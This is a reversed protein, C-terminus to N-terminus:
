KIISVEKNRIKDNKIIYVIQGKQLHIKAGAKDDVYFLIFQGLCSFLMRMLVRIYRHPM